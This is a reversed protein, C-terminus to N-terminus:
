KPDGANKTSDASPSMSSRLCRMRCDEAPGNASSTTDPIAAM